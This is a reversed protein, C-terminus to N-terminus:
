FNGFSKYGEIINKIKQYIEESNELSNININNIPMEFQLTQVKVSNKDPVCTLSISGFGFMKGISDLVLEHKIISSYPIEKITEKNGLKMKKILRSTYFIYETNETKYKDTCIPVVYFLAMVIWSIFTYQIFQSLTYDIKYGFLVCFILLPLGILWVYYGILSYSIKFTSKVVLKIEEQTNNQIINNSNDNQVVEIKSGCNPCLIFNDQIERGCNNCIM